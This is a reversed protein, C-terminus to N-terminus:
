QEYPKVRALHLWNVARRGTDTPVTCPKGPKANCAPCTVEGTQDSM